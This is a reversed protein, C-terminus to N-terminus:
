LKVKKHPECKNIHFLEAVPITRTAKCDPVQCQIDVVTLGHNKGQKFTGPIAHPYKKVREVQAEPDQWLPVRGNVKPKSSVPKPPKSVVPKKVEKKPPEAPLESKKDVVTVALRAKREEREQKRQANLARLRAKAEEKMPKPAKTRESLVHMEAKQKARKLGHELEPGFLFRCKELQAEVHAPISLKYRDLEARIEERTKDIAQRAAEILDAGTAM